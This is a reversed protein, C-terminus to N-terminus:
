IGVAINQSMRKVKWTRTHLTHHMHYVKMGKTVEFMQLLLSVIVLDTFYLIFISHKNM